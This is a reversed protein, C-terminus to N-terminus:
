PTTPPELMRQAFKKNEAFNTRPLLLRRNKLRVYDPSTGSPEIMLDAAAPAAGGDFPLFVDDTIAKGKQNFVRCHTQDGEMSCLAWGHSKGVMPIEVAGAPVSPPVPHYDDVKGYIAFSV